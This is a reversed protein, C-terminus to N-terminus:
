LNIRTLDPNFFPMLLNYNMATFATNTLNHIFPIM